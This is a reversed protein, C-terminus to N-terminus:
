CDKFMHSVSGKVGLWAWPPSQATALAQRSVPKSARAAALLPLAAAALAEWPSHTCRATADSFSRGAEKSSVRPPSSSPPSSPRGSLAVCMKM